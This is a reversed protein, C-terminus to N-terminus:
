LYYVDKYPDEIHQRIKQYLYKKREESIHMVDLIDLKENINFNNDDRLLKHCIEVGGSNESCYVKGLDELLNCKWGIGGNYRLGENGKSSNNVIDEIDDVTNVKQNRYTKKIHGFFSDCIFKTHGKPFEDETIVFNIQRNEGGETKCVGFLHVAYATKFFISGVQQPSYPISVNQAWDYCIHAISLDQKSKEINDNYHKRELDAAKHHEEYQDKIINYKDIDSKAAQMKAKFEVCKECLDSASPQFKLNPILEHWLRRFTSYSIITESEDHELYFDEKYKKYISTYNEGTPLYIFNGSDNRHRMPSPLGYITGYQVLYEKVSSTINFDVFVKSNRRSVCGTNGHTREILGNEQLHTQLTLLKYDNLNCLKMYAPKCLPLSINFSYRYSHRSKKDKENKEDKENSIEFVMLQSKIHLEFEHKELAKLELHREFFRKFGVKEFCTRLDKKNSSNRCTCNTSDKFFTMLDHVVDLVMENEEYEELGLEIFNYVPTASSM